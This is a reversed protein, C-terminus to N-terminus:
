KEFLKRMLKLTAHRNPKSQVLADRFEGEADVSRWLCVKGGDIKLYVKDLHWAGHPKLRRKRLDAAIMPGFRNAWLRVTGYSLAL